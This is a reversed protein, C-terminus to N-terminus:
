GGNRDREVERRRDAILSDALSDDGPLLTRVMDQARQMSIAAPTLQIQSSEVTGIVVEGAEIGLRKLVHAPVLLSGDESTQLKLITVAADSEAETPQSPVPPGISHTPEFPPTNSGAKQREAELVNRVHQYRRNLFRAIDARAFGARDLARIKGSISAEAEAVLRMTERDALM